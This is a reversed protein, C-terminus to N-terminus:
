NEKTFQQITEATMPFIPISYERALKIEEWMGKSICNGFLWLEDILKRTFFEKDNMIGKERQCLINDDLAYCDIFYPVFPVIDNTSLNIERSITVIKNLNGAIDGSIPHAIFVIKM